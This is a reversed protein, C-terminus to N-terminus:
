GRVGAMYRSSGEGPERRPGNDRPAPVQVPEAASAREGGPKPAPGGAQHHIPTLEFSAATVTDVALHARGIISSIPVPGYERSDESHYLNDGLVFVCDDPIRLAECRITTRMKGYRAQVERARSERVASLFQGESSLYHLVEGPERYVRKVYTEGNLRFVVVEGRKPKRTLYCTRDIWIIRGNELTPSMSQGVVVTPQFFSGGTFVLAATAAILLWRRRKRNM